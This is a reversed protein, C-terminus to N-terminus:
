KLADVTACFLRDKKQQFDNLDEFAILCPHTKKDGDKEIGYVWGADLKEKMWDDHQASEPADPNNLRFLVAKIASERQWEEADPWLRQSDDANVICFARNVEHCCIAISYAKNFQPDNKLDSM